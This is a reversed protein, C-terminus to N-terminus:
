GEKSVNLHLGFRALKVAYATALALSHFRRLTVARGRRFVLRVCVQKRAARLCTPPKM